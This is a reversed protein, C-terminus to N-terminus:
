VLLVNSVHVSKNNAGIVNYAISDQDGIQICIEDDDIVSIADYLMPRSIWISQGILEEIANGREILINRIGVNMGNTRISLQEKSVVQIILRENKENQVFPTFFDLINVLSDKNMIVFNNHDYSKIFEDSTFDSEIDLNTMISSVCYIDDTKIVINGSPTISMVVNNSSIAVILQILERDLDYEKKNSFSMTAEYLRSGDASFIHNRMQVGALNEGSSNDGMFILSNKFKIIDDEIVNFIETDKDLLDDASMDPADNIFTSIKFKEDGSSFVFSIQDNEDIKEIKLEEFANCLALFEPISVYFNDMETDDHKFLFKFNLNIGSIIASKNKFDLYLHSRTRSTKDYSLYSLNHYKRFNETNVIM